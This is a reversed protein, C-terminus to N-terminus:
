SFLYNDHNLFVRKWQKKKKAVMKCINMAMVFDNKSKKRTTM